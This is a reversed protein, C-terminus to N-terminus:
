LCGLIAQRAPELDEASAFVYVADGVRGILSNPPQGAVEESNADFAREESSYYTIHGSGPVEAPGGLVLRAEAGEIGGVDDGDATEAEFGRGRLCRAVKDVPEAAVGTSPVPSDTMAEDGGDDDGGGCGAVLLAAVLAAVASVTIKSRLEV